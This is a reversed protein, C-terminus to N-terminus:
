QYGESPAHHGTGEAADRGAHDVDGADDAHQAHDGQDDREAHGGLRAALIGSLPMAVISGLGLCLLLVGLMGDDLGIRTKAFPVLPAWSAIVFGPIFFATRTAHQQFRASPATM